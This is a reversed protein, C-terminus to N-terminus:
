GNRRCDRCDLNRVLTNRCRSRRQYGLPWKDAIESKLKVKAGFQVGTGKKPRRERRPKRTATTVKPSNLLKQAMARHQSRERAQRTKWRRGCSEFAGGGCCNASDNEDSGPRTVMEQQCLLKRGRSAIRRNQRCGIRSPGIGCSRQGSLFDLTGSFKCSVEKVM